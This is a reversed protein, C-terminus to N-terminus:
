KNKIPRAPPTPTPNIATKSSVVGTPQPTNKGFFISPVREPRKRTPKPVPPPTPTLETQASQAIIPPSVPSTTSPTSIGSSTSEVSSTTRNDPDTNGYRNNYVAGPPIPSITVKEADTLQINDFSQRKLKESVAKRFIEKIDIIDAQSKDLSEIYTEIGQELKLIETENKELILTSIHTQISNILHTTVEDIKYLFSADSLEEPIATLLEKGHIEDKWRQFVLRSESEIKSYKNEHKPDLKKAENLVEYYKNVLLDKTLEEPKKIVPMMKAPILQQAFSLNSDKFSLLPHDMLYDEKYLLDIDKETPNIPLLMRKTQYLYILVNIHKLIPSVEPISLIADLEKAAKTRETVRTKKPTVEPPPTIQKPKPSTKQSGEISNLYQKIDSIENENKDKLLADILKSKSTNLTSETLNLIELFRNDIKTENKLKTGDTNTEAYWHQLIFATQMGYQQLTHGKQSTIQLFKSKLAPNFESHGEKTTIFTELSNSNDLDSKKISAEIYGGTPNMIFYKVEEDNMEGVYIMNKEPWGDQPLESISKFTYQPPNLLGAVNLAMFLNKQFDQPANINKPDVFRQKNKSPIKGSRGINLLSKVQNITSLANAHTVIEGLLKNDEEKKLHAAHGFVGRGKQLSPAGELSSLNDDQKPPTGSM